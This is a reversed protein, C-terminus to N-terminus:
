HKRTIVLTLSIGVAGRSRGAKRCETTLSNVEEWPDAIGKQKEVGAHQDCSSTVCHYKADSPRSGPSLLVTVRLKGGWEKFSLGASGFTTQVLGLSGSVQRLALGM